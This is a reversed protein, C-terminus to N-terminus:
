NSENTVYVCHESSLEVALLTGYLVCTTTGPAGSCTLTFYAEGALVVSAVFGLLKTVMDLITYNGKKILYYTVVASRLCM